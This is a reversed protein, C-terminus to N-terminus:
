HNHYSRNSYVAPPRVIVQKEEDEKKEMLNKFGHRKPNKIGIIKVDSAKFLTPAETDGKYRMVPVTYKKLAALMYADVHDPLIKLAVCIEMRSADAQILDWVAKVKEKSFIAPM